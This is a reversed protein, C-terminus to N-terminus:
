SGGAASVAEPCRVPLPRVLEVAAPSVDAGYAIVEVGQVMANRLALGYAPDIADAPQVERADARQVCFVLVARDGGQRIRILEELHRTGRQSVADPFLAIGDQTAATVNKVELYCRSAHGELLGDLRHAGSRVEGRFREYGALETIVGNTIAERVLANARGTHIGVLVGGGVEVLEWTHAYKRGSKASRSMWIRSGPEACGMMSGTNPCHITLRSGDALQVDALFRQYRRELTASVLTDHFVM